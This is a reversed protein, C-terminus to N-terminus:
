EVEKRKLRNPVAETVILWRTACDLCTYVVLAKYDKNLELIDAHTFDPRACTPCILNGTPRRPPGCDEYSDHWSM